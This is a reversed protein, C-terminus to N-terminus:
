TNQTGNSADGGDDNFFAEDAKAQARAAAEARRKREELSTSHKAPNAAVIGDVVEQTTLEPILRDIAGTGIESIQDTDIPKTM